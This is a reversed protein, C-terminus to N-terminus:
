KPALRQYEEVISGFKVLVDRDKEGPGSGTFNWGAEGLKTHFANLLPLKVANDITM